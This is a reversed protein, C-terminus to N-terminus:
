DTYNIKHLNPIEEKIPNYRRISKIWKRYEGDRLKNKRSKYSRKSDRCWQKNVCKYHHRCQNCMCFM